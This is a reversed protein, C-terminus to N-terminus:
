DVYRSMQQIFLRSIDLKLTAGRISKEQRLAYAEELKQINERTLGSRLRRSRQTDAVSGTAIFKRYITQRTPVSNIGFRMNLSASFKGLCDMRKKGVAIKCRM